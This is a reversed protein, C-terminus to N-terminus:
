STVVFEKLLVGMDHRNKLMCYDVASLGDSNKQELFLQLRDREPIVQRLQILLTELIRM